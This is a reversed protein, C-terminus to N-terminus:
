TFVCDTHKVRFTVEKTNDGVTLKASHKGETYKEPRLPAHNWTTTIPHDIKKEFFDKGDVAIKIHSTRLGRVSYFLSPSQACSITSGDPVVGGADWDFVSIRVSISESRDHQDSVPKFCLVAVVILGFVWAIKRIRGRFM